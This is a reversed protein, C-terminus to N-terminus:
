GDSQEPLRPCARSPHRATAQRGKKGKLRLWQLFCYAVMVMLAHHHLGLWSRGEFHDLGLEQKMQQHAQECAWRGKIMRALALPKVDAPLNSLYYRREGGTRKECVLWMQERGPLRRSMAIKPGNALRVRALAFRASLAGKLGRRWTITRWARKPLAAILAQASMRASTAVPHKPPRGRHTDRAARVHVDARYVQLNSLVGVAWSLGRASLGDRFPGCTGYGADAVVAGFRAGQVMVRDIEELAIRWKPRHKLDEPIKAAVRRPADENWAEPLFLRLGIPVPVERRALTLSVLAQCNAKKGLQGCYQHGVGASHRGRKVLATDDVILLADEGGVLGNAKGVLLREHPQLAWRSTSIFHHLQQTQGPAVCAALPEVSKRRSDSLLGRLYFPAWLAQKKNRFQELFPQLWHELQQQWRRTQAM